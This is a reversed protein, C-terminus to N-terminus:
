YPIPTDLLSELHLKKRTIPHTFDLVKACLQQSTYGFSQTELNGYQPDGLIPFGM